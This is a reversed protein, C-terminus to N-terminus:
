ILIKSRYIILDVQNEHRRYLYGLIMFHVSFRLYWPLLPGNFIFYCWNGIYLIIGFGLLKVGGM